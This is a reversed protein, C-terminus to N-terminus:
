ASPSRNFSSDINRRSSEILIIRAIRYHELSAAMLQNNCENYGRSLLFSRVTWCFVSLTAAKYLYGPIIFYLTTYNEHHHCSTSSDVDIWLQNYRKNVAFGVVWSCFSRRSSPLLLPMAAAKTSTSALLSTYQLTTRTWRYSTSSDATIWLQNYRENVPFSIISLNFTAAAIAAEYQSYIPLLRRLLRNM